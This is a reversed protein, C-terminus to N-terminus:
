IRCNSENDFDNFITLTLMFAGTTRYSMLKIDLISYFSLLLCGDIFFMATLLLEYISQLALNPFIVDCNENCFM